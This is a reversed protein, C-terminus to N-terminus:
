ISMRSRETLYDQLKRAFDEPESVGEIKIDGMISYYKTYTGTSKSGTDIGGVNVLGGTQMGLDPYYKPIISKLIAEGYKRNAGELPVVAEAGNEGIMAFTPGRTETTGTQLGVIGGSQLGLFSRVSGRIMEGISVVNRLAGKIMNRLWSTGGSIIDSLSLIRRLSSSIMNRLFIASGTIMERISVISNTASKIGSTIFDYTGTILTNARTKGEEIGGKVGTTIFDWPGTILDTVRVKANELSTRLTNTITGSSLSISNSFAEGAYGLEEKAKESADEPSMGQQRLEWERNWFTENEERTNGGFNSAMGGFLDLIGKIFPSWTTKSDKPPEAIQHIKDIYEDLKTTDVDKMEMWEKLSLLNPQFGDGKMLDSFDKFETPLTLVLETAIDDPFTDYMWDVFEDIRDKGEETNIWEEPSLGEVNISRQSDFWKQLITTINEDKLWNGFGGQMQAESITAVSLMTNAINIMTDEIRQMIEYLSNSSSISNNIYGDMINISGTLDTGIKDGINDWLDQLSGVDDLSIGLQNSYEVLAAASIYESATLNQVEEDTIGFLNKLLEVEGGASNVASTLANSNSVMDRFTQLPTEDVTDNLAQWGRIAIDVFNRWSDGISLISDEWEDESLEEEPILKQLETVIDKLDSPIDGFDLSGLTDLLPEVADGFAEAASAAAYEAEAYQQIINVDEGSIGLGSFTIGTAEYAKQWSTYVDYGLDRFEQYKNILKGISDIEDESLTDDLKSMVDFYDMRSKFLEAEAMKMETYLDIIEQNVLGYEAMKSFLEDLLPPEEKRLKYLKLEAEFVKLQMEWINKAEEEYLKNLRIVTNKLGEEESLLKNQDILYQTQMYLIRILSEAIKAQERETETLDKYKVNLDDLLESQENQLDLIDNGIQEYSIEVQKLEDRAIEAEESNMGYLAIAESYDNMADTQKSLTEERKEENRSLNSEAEVLKATNTIYIDLDDSVEKFLNILVQAQKAYESYSDKSEKVAKNYREMADAHRQVADVYENTGELANERMSNLESESELLEDQADSLEKTADLNDEMASNLVGFEKSMENTIVKYQTSGHILGGLIKILDDGYAILLSIGAVLAFIPVLYMIAALAKMGLALGATSATAAIDVGIKSWMGAVYGKYAAVISKLSGLLGLQSAAQIKTSISDKIRTASLKLYQAILGRVTGAAIMHDTNLKKQSMAQIRTTLASKIRIPILRLYSKLLFLLSTNENALDKNREENMLSQFKIALAESKRAVATELIKSKLVKYLITLTTLPLILLNLMNSADKSLIGLSSFTTNLVFITPILGLLIGKVYSMSVGMSYLNTAVGPLLSHLIKSTAVFSLLITIVTTLTTGFFSLLPSIMKIGNAFLNIGGVLGSFVPLLITKALNGLSLIAPILSDRLDQSTAIFSNKLKKLQNVMTEMQKSAVRETIGGYTETKMTLAAIADVDEVLAAATGATRARFFVAADGADFGAAELKYLIDVLDNTRPNIDGMTLGLEALRVRAKDSPKLLKTLIMNLRQGAQGGELGRNYLIGLASNVQQLDQGLTGALAGVYKIGEALKESTAYTNTIVTTFSDVIEETDEFAMGFQRMTKTVSQLASDLETNTAIAYNLIPLLDDEHLSYVDFGASALSYFADALENVSFISKGSLERSFEMLSEKVEEFSAGMYGSISAVETIRKEFSGIIEILQKFGGFLRQVSQVGISFTIYHMIKGFMNRFSLLDKLMSGISRKTQSSVSKMGGVMYTKGDENIQQWTKRFINGSKDITSTFKKNEKMWQDYPLVEKGKSRLKDVLSMSEKLPKNFESMDLKSLNKLAGKGLTSEILGKIKSLQSELPGTNATFTLSLQGISMNPM